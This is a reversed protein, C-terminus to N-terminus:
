KGKEGLAYVHWKFVVFQISHRLFLECYYVYDVHKNFM